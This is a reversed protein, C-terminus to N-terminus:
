CLAKLAFFFSTDPRQQYEKEGGGAYFSVLFYLRLM